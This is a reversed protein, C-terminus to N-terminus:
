FLVLGPYAKEISSILNASTLGEAIALFAERQQVHVKYMNIGLPKTGEEGNKDM